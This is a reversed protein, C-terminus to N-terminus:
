FFFVVFIEREIEPPRQEGRHLALYTFAGKRGLADGICQAFEEWQVLIQFARTTERMGENQHLVFSHQNGEWNVYFRQIALLECTM